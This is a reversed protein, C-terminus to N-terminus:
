TRIVKFGNKNLIQRDFKSKLDLFVPNSQFLCYKKYDKISIDLFENHPVM